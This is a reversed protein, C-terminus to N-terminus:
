FVKKSFEEIKKIIAPCLMEFTNSYSALEQNLLENVQKEMKKNMIKYEEKFTAKPPAQKNSTGHEGKSDKNLPAARKTKSSSM